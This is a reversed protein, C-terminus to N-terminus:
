NARRRGRGMRETLLILAGIVILVFALNVLAFKFTTVPGAGALLDSADPFRSLAAFLLSNEILDLLFIAIPLILFWDLFRMLRRSSRAIVALVSGIALASLLGYVPDVFVLFRSYLSRGEEQYSTLLQMAEDVGYGARNDLIEEGSMERLVDPPGANFLYASVGIQAVFLFLAAILPIRFALRRLWIIM